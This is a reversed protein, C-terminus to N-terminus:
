RNGPTDTIEIDELMLGARGTKRYTLRAVLGIDDMAFIPGEEDELEGGMQGRAYVIWEQESQWFNGSQHDLEFGDPMYGVHNLENLVGAYHDDNYIRHILDSRGEEEWFEDVSAFVGRTRTFAPNADITFAEQAGLFCCAALDEPLSLTRCRHLGWEPNLIFHEAAGLGGNPPAKKEDDLLAAYTNCGFLSALIQQAHGVSLNLDRHTAIVRATAVAPGLNFRSM